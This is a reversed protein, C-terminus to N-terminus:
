RPTSALTAGGSRAIAADVPTVWGDGDLDAIGDASERGVLLM